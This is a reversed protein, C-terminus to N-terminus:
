SLGPHWECVELDTHPALRSAMAAAGDPNWSHIRVRSPVRNNTLMWEVLQLGTDHCTNEPTLLDVLLFDEDDTIQVVLQLDIHAFELDHDLSAFVVHERELVTIAAANTRTWVWTPDPPPRTDDHWLKVTPTQSSTM